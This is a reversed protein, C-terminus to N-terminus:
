YLGQTTRSFQLIDRSHDTFDKFVATYGKLSGQFSCYIGQTTRSARSFQLIVRSHDKFDKIKVHGQRYSGYTSILLFINLSFRYINELEFTHNPQFILVNIKLQVCM